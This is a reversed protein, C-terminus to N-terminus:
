VNTWEIEHGFLQNLQSKEAQQLDSFHNVIMTGMNMADEFRNEAAYSVCKLGLTKGGTIPLKIITQVIRKLVDPDLTSDFSTVNDETFNMIDVVLSFDAVEEENIQKIATEMIKSFLPMVHQNSSLPIARFKKESDHKIEEFVERGIM